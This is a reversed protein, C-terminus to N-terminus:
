LLVINKDSHLFFTHNKHLLFLTTFLPPALFILLTFFNPFNSFNPIIPFNPFNPIISLVM